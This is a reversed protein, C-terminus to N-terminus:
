KNRKGRTPQEDDKAVFYDKFKATKAQDEDDDDESENEFFDISENDSDSDSEKGKSKPNEVKDSWLSLIKSFVKFFSVCKWKGLFANMESLKFFDDDVVSKMQDPKNSGGKDEDKDEDESSLDESSDDDLNYGNGNQSIENGSESSDSEDSDSSHQGKRKKSNSKELKMVEESFCSFLLKDKAVVLGSVDEVINNIIANNQLEIQQWIQELDFNKIILTKLAEGHPKINSQVEENKMFEYADKLNLKLNETLADDIKDAVLYAKLAEPDLGKLSLPASM